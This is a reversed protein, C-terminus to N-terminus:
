GWSVTALGSSFALGYSFKGLQLCFSKARVNLIRQRALDINIGVNLSM